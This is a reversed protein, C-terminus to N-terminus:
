TLSTLNNSLVPGTWNRHHAVRHISPLVDWDEAIAASEGRWTEQAKLLSTLCIELSLLVSEIFLEINKFSSM